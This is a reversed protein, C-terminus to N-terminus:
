SNEKAESEGKAVKVRAPRLVREGLMYGRQFEAIVEGENHGASVEHWMAEHFNPDFTKGVAQMPKVKWLELATKMKQEVLRMGEVWPENRFKEPIVNFAADFGDLVDLLQRILEENAREFIELREREVRKRYNSLEAVARIWNDKYEAVQKKAEDLQQELTLAQTEEQKETVPEEAM